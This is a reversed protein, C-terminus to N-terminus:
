CQLSVFGAVRPFVSLFTIEPIAYGSLSINETNLHQQFKPFMSIMEKLVSKCQLEQFCGNSLVNHEFTNILDISSMSVHNMCIDSYEFRDLIIYNYCYFLFFDITAHSRKLKCSKNKCFCSYCIVFHARVEWSLENESEGTINIMM